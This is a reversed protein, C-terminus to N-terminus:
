YLKIEQRIFLAFKTFYDIRLHVPLARLLKLPFQAQM